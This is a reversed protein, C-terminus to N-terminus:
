LEVDNASREDVVLSRRELNAVTVEGEVDVICAQLYAQLDFCMRRSM